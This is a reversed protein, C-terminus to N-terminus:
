VLGKIGNEYIFALDTTADCDGGKSATEYCIM